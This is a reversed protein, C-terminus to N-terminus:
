TAPKLIVGVLTKGNMKVRLPAHLRVRRVFQLEV